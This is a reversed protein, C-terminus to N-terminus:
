QCAKCTKVSEAIQSNADRIRINVHRKLDQTRRVVPPFLPLDESTYVTGYRRAGHTQLRINKVM